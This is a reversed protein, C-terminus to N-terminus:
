GWSHALWATGSWTSGSWTGGSWSGGSWSGGSWSGGSWSGGSWSGGSWSGGSWSGGSWTTGSWTTGSWSGGSWSGGSWMSENWAGDSWSRGENSEKTWREPDWARGFIDIEGDLLVGEANLRDQGRALNISGRGNSREHDQHAEEPDAKEHHSDHMDILGAGQCEDSAKKVESAEDLLIEKVEDPSLEPRYDLLLAVAGSVVAAAQSTGSGAFLRGAVTAHPNAEDIYSGPVRLSLISRGPAVVDVHRDLTGCSSFPAIREISQDFAGVAIAFPDSAPNRLQFGSGDNGAAVVVVIGADWAQEVAYALPDLEYAQLGDTGYSLNLM